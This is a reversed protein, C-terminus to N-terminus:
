KSHVYTEQKRSDTQRCRHSNSEARLKMKRFQKQRQCRIRSRFVPASHRAGTSTGASTRNPTRLFPIEEAIQGRVLNPLKSIGAFDTSYATYPVRNGNSPSDILQRNAILAARSALHKGQDFLVDDM